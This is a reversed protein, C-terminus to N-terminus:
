TMGLIDECYSSIVLLAFMNYPLSSPTVSPNCSSSGSLGRFIDTLTWFRVGASKNSRWASDGVNIGLRTWRRVLMGGDSMYYCYCLGWADLQTSVHLGFVTQNM